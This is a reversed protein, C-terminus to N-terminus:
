VESLTNSRLEFEKIKLEFKAADLLLRSRNNMQKLVSVSLKGREIEIQQNENREILSAMYEMANVGSITVNLDFENLMINSKLLIFVISSIFSCIFLKM